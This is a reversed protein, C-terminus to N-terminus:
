TISIICYNFFYFEEEYKEGEEKIKKNELLLQVINELLQIYKHINYTKYFNLREIAQIKIDYLRRVKNFM